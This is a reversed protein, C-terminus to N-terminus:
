LEVKLQVKQYPANQLDLFAGFYFHDFAAYLTLSLHSNQLILLLLAFGKLMAYNGTCSYAKPVSQERYITVSHASSLKFSIRRRVKVCFCLVTPLMGNSSRALNKNSKNGKQVNCETQLTQPQYPKSSILLSRWLTRPSTRLYSRLYVRLRLNSM